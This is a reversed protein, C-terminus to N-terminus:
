WQQRAVEAEAAMYGFAAWQAPRELIEQMRFRAEEEDGQLLAWLGVGYLVTVTALGEGSAPLISELPRDGRFYLLLDRYSENELLPLDPDVAAMVAQAEEQAGLRLLTLTLWYRAAVELDPNDSVALTELWGGRAAELNGLLLEALARHYHVNFALTSLPIGAANPLGDPEIEGGAEGMLEAARVLDRRARELERLTLWRHGRHRLFRADDPFQRTGQTFTEIASRYSGLYAQNRGLWLLADPDEPNAAVEAESRALKAERDERVAGPLPPAFLAQGLWSWGEAGEPLPRESLRPLPPLASATEGGGADCAALGLPLLLLLAARRIM